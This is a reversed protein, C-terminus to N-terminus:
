PRMRRPASPSQRPTRSLPQRGLSWVRHGRALLPLLLQGGVRVARAPVLRAADARAEEAEARLRDMDQAIQQQEVAIQQQEVARRWWVGGVALGVLALVVAAVATAAAPRRQV